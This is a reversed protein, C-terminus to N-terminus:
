EKPPKLPVPPMALPAHGRTPFYDRRYTKSKAHTADARVIWEKALFHSGNLAQLVESDPLPGIAVSDSGPLFPYKQTHGRLRAVFLKGTRVKRRRSNPLFVPGEWCAEGCHSPERGPGPVDAAMEAAFVVEGKHVLHVSAPLSASVRVDGYYYPTSFFVRECLAFSRCSNFAHVLYAADQWTGERPRSVLVSVSLERFRVGFYKADAAIILLQARGDCEAPYLEEKLLREKWFALDATGLLSIERVHALEAAWQPSTNM